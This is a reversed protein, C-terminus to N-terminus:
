KGFAELIAEECILSETMAEADSSAVRPKAVNTVDFHKGDGIANFFTDMVWLVGKTAVNRLNPMYAMARMPYASVLEYSPFYEVYSYKNYLEGVVARLISKSYITATLVHQDTATATLPVPSVTFLFKINPNAARALQMFSEMDAMTENFTFNKFKYKKSDFNGGITGPCTPLVVGDATCEWAETLGLTFVFLDTNELLESVCQLHYALDREYEIINTFGDPEIAPRFPDRVRGNSHIWPAESPKLIGTAREFMQVLQRATYINGYRASYLNFGFESWASPNLVNEPPPPELDIFQYNRAKFQAGIHQAFCSGACAIRMSKDVKFRPTFIDPIEM